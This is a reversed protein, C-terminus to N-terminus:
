AQDSMGHEKLKDTLDMICRGMSRITRKYALISKCLNHLSYGNEVLIKQMEEFESIMREDDMERETLKMKM